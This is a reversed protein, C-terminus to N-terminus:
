QIGVLLVLLAAIVGQLLKGPLYYRGTLDSESIVGLTQGWVALGGFSLLFAALALNGGTPALGRMALMRNLANVASDVDDLLTGNWDWIIYRDSM